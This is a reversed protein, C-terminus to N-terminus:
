AHMITQQNQDNLRSQLVICQVPHGLHSRM